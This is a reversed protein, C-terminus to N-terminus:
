HTKHHAKFSKNLKELHRKRFIDLNLSPEDMLCFDPFSAYMLALSLARRNGSSLTYVKNHAVLEFSKIWWM